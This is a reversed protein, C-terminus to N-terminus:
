FSRSSMRERGMYLMSSYFNNEYIIYLFISTANKILCGTYIEDLNLSVVVVVYVSIAIRAASLVTCRPGIMALLSTKKM